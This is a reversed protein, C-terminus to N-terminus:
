DNRDEDGRQGDRGDAGGEDSSKARRSHHDTHERATASRHHASAERGYRPARRNSKQATPRPDDGHSPTHRVDDM